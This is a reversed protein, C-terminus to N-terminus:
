ITGDSSSEEKSSLCTKQERQIDYFRMNRIEREINPLAFAFMGLNFRAEYDQGFNLKTVEVM